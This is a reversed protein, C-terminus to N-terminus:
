DNQIFEDISTEVVLQDLKRWTVVAYFTALSFLDTGFSANIETNWNNFGPILTRDGFNKVMEIIPAMMQTSSSADVSSYETFEVYAVIASQIVYKFASSFSVTATSCWGTYPIFNKVNWCYFPALLFVFGKSFRCKPDMASFLKLHWSKKKWKHEGPVWNSDNPLLFPLDQYHRIHTWASIRM